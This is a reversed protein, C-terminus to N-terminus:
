EFYENGVVVSNELSERGLYPQDNLVKYYAYDCAESFTKGEVNYNQVYYEFFCLCWYNCSFAGVSTEFGIVTEAGASLTANVLNTTDYEGGEATSCAGYIILDSYALYNSPLTWFDTVTFFGHSLEVATKSGHTRLLTIKSYRMYNLLDAGMIDSSITSHNNFCNIYGISELGSQISGFYSSRDYNTKVALLAAGRAIHASWEDRYDADDIYATMMLNSGDGSTQSHTALVYGSAELSKCVLKYNGSSTEVFRWLTNNEISDYQRIYETNTPDVGVYLHSYTSKITFYGGSQVQFLWKTQTTGNFECQQIFAGEITSPGEIEMYKETAVNEVFGTDGVIDPIIPYNGYFTRFATTTGDARIISRLKFPGAKETTLTLTCTSADWIGTAMGQSDPHVLAYPTNKGIETTWTVIKVNYTNNQILAGSTPPPSFVPIVGSHTEGTYQYMYWRAQNGSDTETSKKLYSNPAGAMGSATTNNAAVVNSSSYPKIVFYERIPNYELKFTDNVSM